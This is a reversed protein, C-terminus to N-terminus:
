PNFSKGEAALRKTTINDLPNYNAPKDTVYLVAPCRAVAAM